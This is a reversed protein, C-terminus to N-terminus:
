SNVMQLYFERRAASLALIAEESWGYASALVHVESLARRARVSIEQWFFSTIDFIVQWAEGCSLCQVSLRTEAQPDANGMLRCLEEVDGDSLEGLGFEAGRKRVSVLCRELIRQKGQELPAVLMADALDESNPLRFTATLEGASETFTQAREPPAPQLIQRTEMEFQLDESCEPCDVSCVFRSGFTKERLQLLLRDREGVHLKALDSLSGKQGGAELLLLAQDIPSRLDGREWVRIMEQVSLPRM